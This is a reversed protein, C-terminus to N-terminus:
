KENEFWLNKARVRLNFMPLYLSKERKIFETNSIVFQSILINDFEDKSLQFMFDTPFRDLNRKVAQNFVRTEVQYMEALDSDLLVQM